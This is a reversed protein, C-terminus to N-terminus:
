SVILLFAIVKFVFVLFFLWSFTPQLSDLCQTRGEWNWRQAESISNIDAVLVARPRIIPVGRDHPQAKMSSM